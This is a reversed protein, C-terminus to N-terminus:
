CSVAPQLLMRLLKGSSKLSSIAYLVGSTFPPKGACAGAPQRNLGLPWDCGPRTELGCGDPTIGSERRFLNTGTEPTGRQVTGGTSAARAEQVGKSAVTPTGRYIRNLM